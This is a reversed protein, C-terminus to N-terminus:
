KRVHIVRTDKNAIPGDEQEGLPFRRVFNKIPVLGIFVNSKVTTSIKVSPTLRYYSYLIPRQLNKEIFGRAASKITSFRIMTIQLIAEELLLRSM